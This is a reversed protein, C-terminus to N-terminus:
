GLNYIIIFNYMFIYIIISFEESSIGYSFKDSATCRSMGGGGHSSCQGGALDHGNLITLDMNFRHWSITFQPPNIRITSLQQYGMIRLNNKEFGHNM